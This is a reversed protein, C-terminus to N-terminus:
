EAEGRRAKLEAYMEERIEGQIPYKRLFLIALICCIAPVVAIVVMMGTQMSSFNALAAPLLDGTVEDVGYGFLTLVGLAATSAIANQGKDLIKFGATVIAGDGKGTKWANYDICETRFISMPIFAFGQFFYMIMFMAVFLYPSTQLIGLIHLVFMALGTIAECTTTLTIMKVPGLKNMLPRALAISLFMVLFTGAAMILTFNGVAADDVHGNVSFYTWKLYYTNAAMMFVYIFGHFLQAMFFTKLADNNKFISIIEKFTVKETEEKKEEVVNQERVFSVATLSILLGAAVYAITTLGFGKSVSGTMNKFSAYVKLFVSLTMGTVISVIRGWFMQNGRVKTDLTMAQQIPAQADFSYGFDYILYFFLMWVIVLVNNHKIFDPMFYMGVLAAGMMVISLIQFPKYKGGKGIKVSEMFWGQIPDDIADVIRGVLLVIGAVVTAWSPDIGAYDTLYIAFYSGVLGSAIVSMVTMGCYGFYGTFTDPYVHKKKEKKAM